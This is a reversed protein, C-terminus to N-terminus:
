SIVTGRGDLADRLPHEARGDGILVRCPAGRFLKGIGHLKRKFRGSAAEERRALEASSMQPVVSTGDSPDDLIGPAEILQVVTEARLVGQLVAVVDDNETNLASGDEGAIPVTLVPLYGAGLLMRLLRENVSSPKGSHDRRVLIKGGERSRIGPNRRGQVLGGDLGTLGIARLGRRALAEVIRKNRLGAYAMLLVDIAEDDSYTSEYGSASTLVKRETGLREALEDRWANAGHVVVAPESLAALDEAIGEVNIGRGGGIKLILV